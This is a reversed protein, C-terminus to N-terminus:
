FSNRFFGQEELLEQNVHIARQSRKKHKVVKYDVIKGENKQQITLQQKMWADRLM